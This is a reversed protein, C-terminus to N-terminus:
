LLAPSTSRLRRTGSTSRFTEVTGDPTVTAAVNVLTTLRGFKAVTREVAGKASAEDAVDVQLAQARGGSATIADAAAESKTPDLDAIAVEAGEAAFRRCILASRAVM